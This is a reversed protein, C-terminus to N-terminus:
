VVILVRTHPDMLPTEDNWIAYNKGDATVEDSIHKWVMPPMYEDGIYYGAKRLTTQNVTIPQIDSKAGTNMAMENYIANLTDKRIARIAIRDPKLGRPRALGSAISKHCFPYLFAISFHASPPQM